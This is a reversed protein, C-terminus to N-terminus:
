ASSIFQSHFRGVYVIAQKMYHQRHKEEKKQINQTSFFNECVFDEKISDTHMVIKREMVVIDCTIQRGFPNV